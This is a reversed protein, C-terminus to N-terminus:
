PRRAAPVSLVARVPKEGPVRWVTIRVLIPLAARDNWASQYRQSGLRKDVYEIKLGAAPRILPMWEGFEAQTDVTRRDIGIEWDHSNAVPRLALTAYYYGNASASLLARGPAALWQMSDTEYRDAGTTADSKAVGRLSVYKQLNLDKGKDSQSPLEDLAGQLFAALGGASDRAADLDKSGQVAALNSRVFSYVTMVLMALVAMGIVVELLTFGRRSRRGADIREPPLRRSM